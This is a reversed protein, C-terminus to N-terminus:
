KLIQLAEVLDAQLLSRRETVTLGSSSFARESSVSTAMVPLIDAAIAAWTPYQ